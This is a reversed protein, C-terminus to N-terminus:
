IDNHCPINSWHGRIYYVVSITPDYTAMVIETLHPDSYSIKPYKDKSQIRCEVSDTDTDSSYQM